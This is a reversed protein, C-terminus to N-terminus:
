HEAAYPRPSSPYLRFVNRASVASAVATGAAALMGLALSGAIQECFRTYINCLKTWQLAHAGELAIICAQAAAVTTAFTTYACAKDLLLCTWALARSSNRRCCAPSAAFRRGLYLCKLLQLFHYGAAAAAAMALVWLAQVDKVTAKKRVLLVTETQTSLGVLLAAAAALAACAGRLVGEAKVESVTAVAM